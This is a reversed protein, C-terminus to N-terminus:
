DDLEVSFNCWSSVFTSNIYIKMMLTPTTDIDNKIAANLSEQLKMIYGPSAFYPLSACMMNNYIYVYYMHITRAFTAELKQEFIKDLSFWNRVCQTTAAKLPELSCM